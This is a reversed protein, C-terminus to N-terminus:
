KQEKRLGMKDLKKILWKIRDNGWFMEGAVILAPVGFVGDHDAEERAQGLAAEGETEAFREFGRADLGVESLVSGLAQQNELDLERKFFREFVLRSYERFRGHRDAYLGSVLALRSDFIKQPGRIILGRENAFRRADEYLYRVKFWDRETRQELEGGYASRIDLVQPIFRLRVSHTSELQLAPEFALYTFPSKYDYYFKIEEPM